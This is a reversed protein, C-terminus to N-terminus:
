FKVRKQWGRLYRQVHALRPKIMEIVKDVSAAGLVVGMWQLGNLATLLSEPYPYDNVAKITVPGISGDLKLDCGLLILAGQVIKKELPQGSNVATDFIEASVRPDRVENLGLPLWYDRYYIPKATERTLGKIDISPYQRKSLGFNTEGGPDNPDNSYGGEYGMTLDYAADFAPPFLTLSM